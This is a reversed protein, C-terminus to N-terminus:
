FVCTRENNDSFFVSTISLLTKLTSVDWSFAENSFVFVICFFLFINLSHKSPLM